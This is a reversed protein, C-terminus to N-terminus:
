DNIRKRLEMHVKQLESMLKSENILNHLRNSIVFEGNIMLDRVSRGGHTIMNGILSVPKNENYPM